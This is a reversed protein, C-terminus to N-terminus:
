GRSASMIRQFSSNGGRLCWTRVLAILTSSQCHVMALVEDRLELLEVSLVWPDPFEEFMLSKESM